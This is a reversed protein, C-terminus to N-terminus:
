FQRDTLAWGNGIGGIDLINLDKVENEHSLVRLITIKAVSDTDVTRAPQAVVCDVDLLKRLM